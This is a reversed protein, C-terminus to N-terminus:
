AGAHARKGHNWGPYIRGTRPEPIRGRHVSMHCSRCLPITDTWNEPEYSWHHLVVTFLRLRGSRVSCAGCAECATPRPHGLRIAKSMAAQAAMKQPHNTTGM